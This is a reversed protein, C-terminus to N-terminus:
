KRPPLPIPARSAVRVEALFLALGFGLLLVAVIFTLGEADALNVRILPNLFILGIVVCVLLASSVCLTISWRALRIRQDINLLEARLFELDSEEQVLIERRRDVSRGLRSAIINLISGIGSILFAPALASTIMHPVISVM